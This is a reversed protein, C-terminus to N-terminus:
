SAAPTLRHFSYSLRASFSPMIVTPPESDRGVTERAGAHCPLAIVTDEEVAFAGVEAPDLAGLTRFVGIGDGPYQPLASTEGETTGCDVVRSPVWFGGIRVLIGGGCDTPEGFVSADM